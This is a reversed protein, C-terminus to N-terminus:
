YNSLITIDVPKLMLYSFQTTM